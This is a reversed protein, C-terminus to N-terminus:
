RDSKMNLDPAWRSWWRLQLQRGSIRSLKGDNIQMEGAIAIFDGAVHIFKGLM